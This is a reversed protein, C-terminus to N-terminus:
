LVPALDSADLTLTLSYTVPSADGECGIELYYADDIQADLTLSPGDLISVGTEDFVAISLFHDTGWDVDLAVPGDQGFSVKYTQANADPADCTTTEIMCLGDNDLHGLDYIDTGGEGIVVHAGYACSPGADEKGGLDFEAEADPAGPRESLDNLSSQVPDDAADTEPTAQDAPGCGTLLLAIFWSLRLASAPTSM